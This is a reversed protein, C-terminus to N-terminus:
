GLPQSYERALCAPQGEEAVGGQGLADLPGFRLEDGLGAPRGGRLAPVAPETIGIAPPTALKASSPDGNLLTAPSPKPPTGPAAARSSISRAKGGAAGGDLDLEGM